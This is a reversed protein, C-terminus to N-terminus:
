FGLWNTNLVGNTVSDLIFVGSTDVAKECGLFVTLEGDVWEDRIQEVFSAASLGTQADVVTVRDSVERALAAVITTDTVCKVGVTETPRPELYAAVTANALDQLTNISDFEARPQSPPNYVRTKYRSRSTTVSITEGVQTTNTVTVPQARLQLGTVTAGSAGATLTITVRAGSTRDLSVGSLSGASVTYDTGNVCVAATFPDGSTAIFPRAEGPALSVSSGLSWVVALAQAARSKFTLTIKNVVSKLGPNYSLDPLRYPENGTDAFTAQSVTCRSTLLRYHRGEFVFRGQGDEYVVAGPGESALLANVASLPDEDDLWWWALTTRGTDLVRDAAPWGIADLLYGIAQDTRINQYLATSVTLDDEGTLRSLTGLCPLDVTKVDIEPHQPLDDLVGTFRRYTVANHVTDFRVPLGPRLSGYLPSSSYDPSYDKSYNDLTAEASGAMPPAYQRLQNRGRECRVASELVLLRGTVEEGTDAYDGDQNWDVYGKLTPLTM